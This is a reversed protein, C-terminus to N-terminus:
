SEYIKRQEETKPEPIHYKNGRMIPGPLTAFLPLDSINQPVKTSKISVKTAKTTDKSAENSTAM